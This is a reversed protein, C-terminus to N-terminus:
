NLANSLTCYPQHPTVSAAEAGLRERRPGVKKLPGGSTARDTPAARRYFLFRLAM